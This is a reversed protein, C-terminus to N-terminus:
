AGGKPRKFFFRVSGASGGPMAAILEWGDVGYTNLMEAFREDTEGSVFGAPVSVTRYEWEAM